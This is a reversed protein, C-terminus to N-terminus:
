QPRVVAVFYSSKPWAAWDDRDEVRVDTVGACHCAERVKDAWSEASSGMRYFYSRKVEVSGDKKNVFKDAYVGSNDADCAKRVNKQFQTAM